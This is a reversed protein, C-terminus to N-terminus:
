ASLRLFLDSNSQWATEYGARRLAAICDTEWVGDRVVEIFIYRPWLSRPAKAIFPLLAKDEYGEIDIKLVDIKSLGAIQCVALLPQVPVTTPKHGDIPLASSHGYQEEGVYLVLEGVKDGVATR